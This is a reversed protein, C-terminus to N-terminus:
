SSCSGAPPTSGSEIDTLSRRGPAAPRPESPQHGSSAGDLRRRDPEVDDIPGLRDRRDGRPDGLEPPRIRASAVTRSISPSGGSVSISSSTSPTVWSARDAPSSRDQGVDPRDVPRAREVLDEALPHDHDTAAGLDGLHREARDALGVAVVQAALPDADVRDREDALRVDRGGDPRHGVQRARPQEHQGARDHTAVDAHGGLLQPRDADRDDREVHDARDGLVDVQHDGVRDLGPVIATIATASM